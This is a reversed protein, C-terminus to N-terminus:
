IEGLLVKKQHYNQTSFIQKVFTNLSETGPTKSNAQTLERERERGRGEKGRRGEEKRGEREGEREREGGGEGEGGM